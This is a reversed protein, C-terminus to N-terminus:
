ILEAVSHPQGLIDRVAWTANRRQEGIAPDMDLVRRLGSDTSDFDRYREIVDAKVTCTVARRYLMVLRKEGALTDQSVDELKAIGAAAHGAKFTALRANINAMAYVAAERLRDDTVTGDLRITNRLVALSLDPFWGDNILTDNESTGTAPAAVVFGSM